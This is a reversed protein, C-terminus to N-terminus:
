GQAGAEWSQLFAILQETKGESVVEEATKYGFTSLPENKFWFIANTVDTGMDTVARLVKVSDRIYAQVKESEPANRVTNRHVHARLALTQQDM